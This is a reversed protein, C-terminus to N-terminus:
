RLQNITIRPASSVKASWFRRVWRLSSSAVSVVAQALEEAQGVDRVIRALGATLKAAEIRWVADITRRTDPATM